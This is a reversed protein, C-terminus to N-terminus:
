GAEGTIGLACYSIDDHEYFAAKAARKQYDNLEM